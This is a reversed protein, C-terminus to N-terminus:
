VWPTTIGNEDPPAVLPLEKLLQTAARPLEGPSRRYVFFRQRRVLEPVKLATVREAREAGAFLPHSLWGLLRTRDIFSIVTSSSETEVAIRPRGLGSRRVAVDFFEREETGPPFMIWGEQLVDAFSPNKKQLIPHSSSCFVRYSNDLACEAIAMIGPRPPVAGAIMLDIEYNELATLLTDEMAEILSVNLGPWGALLGDVAVPMISRTVTAVAGVRVTGRQLGRLADLAEVAQSMGFLLHRAHPVLERGFDTLIMGTSVRDFLRAGLRNEMDQILRSLAPQSLNIEEIARGLSGTKVIALFARLQRQDFAM